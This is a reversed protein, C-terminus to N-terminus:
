CPWEAESADGCLARLSENSDALRSCLLCKGKLTMLLGQRSSSILPMTILHPRILSVPAGSQEANRAGRGRLRCSAGNARLSVPILQPHANKSHFHTLVAVSSPQLLQSHESTAQQARALNAAMDATKGRVCVCVCVCVFLCVLVLCALM